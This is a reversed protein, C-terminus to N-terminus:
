REHAVEDGGRGAVEGGGQILGIVKEVGSLAQSGLASIHGLPYRLTFRIGLIDLLLCDSGAKFVM